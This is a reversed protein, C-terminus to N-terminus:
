GCWPATPWSRPPCPLPPTKCVGCVKEDYTSNRHDYETGGGAGAAVTGGVGGLHSGLADFISSVITPVRDASGSPQAAFIDALDITIEPSSGAFGTPLRPLAGFDSFSFGPLQGFGGLTPFRGSPDLEVKLELEPNPPSFIALLQFATV